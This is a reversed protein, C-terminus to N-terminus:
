EREIRYHLICVAVEESAGVRFVHCDIATARSTEGWHNFFIGIPNSHIQITNVLNHPFIVLLTMGYQLLCSWDINSIVIVISAGIWDLEIVIAECCM